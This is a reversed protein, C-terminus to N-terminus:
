TTTVKHGLIRYKAVFHGHLNSYVCTFKFIGFNSIKGAALKSYATYEFKAAVSVSGGSGVGGTFRAVPVGEPSGVSSSGVASSGGMIMHSGNAAMAGGATRVAEWEGDTRGVTIGRLLSPASAVDGHWGGSGRAAARCRSRQCCCTRGSCARGTM